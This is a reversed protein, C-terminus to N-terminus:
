IQPFKKRIIKTDHFGHRKLYNETTQISTHGLHDRINITKEGEEALTVAGTHKWSYLKYEYPLKLKTRFDNFRFRFNNKGLKIEGPQGNRSFVYYDGPYKNIGEEILYDLFVDPVTVERRASGKSNEICVRVRGYGKRFDIDRVKLFRVEYGPRLGCYYEFRCVMALQKDHKDFERMLKRAHEKRIREAGEDVKKTNNPLNYIPNKPIEGRNQLWDFFTTLLDIYSRYTRAALGRELKLYKFFEIIVNNDVVKIDLKHLEKSEM